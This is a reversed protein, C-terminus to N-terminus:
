LKIGSEWLRGSGGYYFICNTEKKGCSRLKGYKRDIIGISIANSASKKIKYVFQIINNPDILYNGLLHTWTGTEGM